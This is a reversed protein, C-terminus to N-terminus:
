LLSLTTALVADQNYVFMVPAIGIFAKFYKTLDNNLANAIFWQATGQSHGFWIVQDFNGQAHSLVYKVNAPVDYKGMEHM